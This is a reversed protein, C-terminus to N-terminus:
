LPQREAVREYGRPSSAPDRASLRLRRIPAALQDQCRVRGM